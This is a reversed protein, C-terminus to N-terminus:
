KRSLHPLNHMLPWSELFWLHLVLHPLLPTLTLLTWPIWLTFWMRLELWYPYLLLPLFLLFLFLLSLLVLLLLLLFYLFLLLLYLFPLILFLFLLLRLLLRPLFPLFVILLQHLM